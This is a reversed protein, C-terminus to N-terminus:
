RNRWLIRDDIRLRQQATSIEKKFRKADMPYGATPRLGPVHGSWFANFAMMALERLYKSIMSALATSLSSEGKATFRIEIPRDASSWRYCSQRRGESVVTPLVEPFVTQLVPAYRNRGGHKDCDIVVPGDEVRQLQQRVLNLTEYSLAGGKTDFRDILANFREPFIAVAQMSLLEVGHRALGSSFQEGRQSIDAPDAAIPANAAFDAPTARIALPM